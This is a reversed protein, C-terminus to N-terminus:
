DPALYVCGSLRLNCCTQHLSTAKYDDAAVLIRECRKSENSSALRSCTTWLSSALQKEFKKYIICTKEVVKLLDAFVQHLKFFGIIFKICNADFRYFVCSKDLKHRALFVDCVQHLHDVLQMFNAPNM